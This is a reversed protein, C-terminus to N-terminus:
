NLISFAGFRGHHSLSLDIPIKLGQHFAEPVGSPSKRIEMAERNLSYRKTLQMLAASKTDLSQSEYDLSQLEIVQSQITQSTNSSATSFVYGDEILSTTTFVQDDIRVSGQSESLVSCVLKSPNFFRKRGFRIFLKYASEKMSWLRWTLLFPECSHALRKQEEVAFVKKQFGARKWTGEKMALNLDVIDNGIV